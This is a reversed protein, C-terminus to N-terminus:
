NFHLPYFLNKDKGDFEVLKSYGWYQWGTASVIGSARLIHDVGDRFPSWYSAHPHSNLAYSSTVGPTPMSM